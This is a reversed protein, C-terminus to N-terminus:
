KGARYREIEAAGSAPAERLAKRNEFFILWSKYLRHFDLFKAPIEERRFSSVLGSDIDQM